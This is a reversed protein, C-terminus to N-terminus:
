LYPNGDKDVTVANGLGADDTFDVVMPIFRPGSGPSVDGPNTDSCAALFFTAACTLILVRKSM